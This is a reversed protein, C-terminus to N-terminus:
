FDIYDTLKKKIINQKKEKEADVRLRVSTAITFKGQLEQIRLCLPLLLFDQFFTTSFRSFSLFFPSKTFKQSFIFSYTYHGLLCFSIPALQNSVKRFYFEKNILPYM